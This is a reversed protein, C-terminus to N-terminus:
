RLPRDHPHRARAMPASGLSRRSLKRAAHRHLAIRVPLLLERLALALGLVVGVPFETIVTKEVINEDLRGGTIVPRRGDGILDIIREGKM